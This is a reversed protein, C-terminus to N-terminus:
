SRKRSWAARLWNDLGLNKRERLYVPYGYPWLVTVFGMWRFVHRVPNDRKWTLPDHFVELAAFIGSALAALIIVLVLAFVSHTVVAVVPLTLAAAIPMGLLFVGYDTGHSQSAMLRPNTQKAQTM